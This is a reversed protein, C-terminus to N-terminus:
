KPVVYPDNKLFEINIMRSHSLAMRATFAAIYASETGKSDDNFSEGIM